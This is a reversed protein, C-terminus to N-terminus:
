LVSGSSSGFLFVPQGCAAVLAELDEIEREVAYPETHSSKGRGRRDYNIVTFSSALQRALLRAGDRDVLAASVLIVAPGAGTQEYAIIAGDQSKVTKQIAGMPAGGTRLMRALAVRIGLGVVAMGVVLVIGTTRATRVSM